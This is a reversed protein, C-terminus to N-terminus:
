ADRGKTNKKKIAEPTLRLILQEPLRMDITSIEKETLQHEKELNVLYALAQDADNEPLKVDIKGDLQIDWRHTRLHTAGTVRSKIEPYKDLLNVFEGVNDPVDEGTMVILEQYKYPDKIEIVDGDKDLLFTKSAKMWLAVPQKESIKIFLTDPLRREVSAAKIWQVEELKSKIDNLCISFLPKGKQLEAIKLIHDKDTRLRGQVVVDELRFGLSRTTEEFSCVAQETIFSAHLFFWIGATFIVIISSVLGIRKLSQKKPSHRQAKQRKPYRQQPSRGISM